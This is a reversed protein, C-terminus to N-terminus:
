GAVAAPAHPADEVAVRRADSGAHVVLVLLCFDWAPMAYRSPTQWIFLMPVHALLAAVAMVGLPPRLTARGPVWLGVVWLSM